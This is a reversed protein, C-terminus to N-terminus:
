GGAIMVIVHIEDGDSISHAAVDTSVLKNNIFIQFYNHLAGKGDFLLERLDPFKIVLNALAEGVTKGTVEATQTESHRHLLPSVVKVSM